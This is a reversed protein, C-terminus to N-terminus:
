HVDASHVANGIANSYVREAYHVFEVYAAVFRRGAAASEDSREQAARAHEFRELLGAEVAETLTEVLSDARGSLLAQDSAEVVPGPDTGAPKLGTFPEGESARHLRVATEFLYRDALERADEGLARVALTRAFTSRLEPEDGPGIWKLLPTVDELTLARMADRVVPGDMSDCHAYASGAAFFTGSLVMLIAALLRGFDIKLLM